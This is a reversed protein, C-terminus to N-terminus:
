GLQRIKTETTQEIEEQRFCAAHYGRSLMNIVVRRILSLIETLFRTISAM